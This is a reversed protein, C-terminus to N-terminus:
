GLNMNVRGRNLDMRGQHPDSYTRGEIGLITGVTDKVPNWGLKM